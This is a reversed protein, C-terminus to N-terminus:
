ALVPPKLEAAILESVRYPMAFGAPFPADNDPDKGGFVRQGGPGVRNKGSRWLHAILELTGMRLDGPVVTRGATYAVRVMAGHFPYELAGLETDLVYGYAGTVPDDAAVVVAGPYRTVTQVSLVPWQRLFLVPGPTRHDETLATPVAPGCREIILKEAAAIFGAIEADDITGGKGLHDKVEDVTVIVGM